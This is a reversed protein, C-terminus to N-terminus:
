FYSFSFSQAIKQGNEVHWGDTVGRSEWLGHVWSSAANKKNVLEADMSVRFDM